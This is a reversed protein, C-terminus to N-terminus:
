LLMTAKRTSVSVLKISLSNKYPQILFRLKKVEKGGNVTASRPLLARAGRFTQVKYLFGGWRETLIDTAMPWMNNGGGGFPHEPDAM